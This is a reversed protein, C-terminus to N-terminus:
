PGHHGSHPESELFASIEARIEEPLPEALLRQAHICNAGHHRLHRAIDNARPTLAMLRYAVLWAELSGLPIDDWTGSPLAPIRVATASPDAGEPHIGFNVLVNIEVDGETVVLLTGATPQTSANEADQWTLNAATLAAEVVAPDADVLVDWDRVDAILGHAYMLGSGGLTAGLGGQELAHLVTRLSDHSPHTSM